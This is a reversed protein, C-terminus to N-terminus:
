VWATAAELEAVPTGDANMQSFLSILIHVKNSREERLWIPDCRPTASQFDDGLIRARAAMGDIFEASMSRLTTTSLGLALLGYFNFAINFTVKPKPLVQHGAPGEPYAEGSQWPLATTIKPRIAKVFARGAERGAASDDVHLFIFRAKPFPYGRLVNGQIDALDLTRAM